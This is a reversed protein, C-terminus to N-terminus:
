VDINISLLTISLYCVKGSGVSGIVCILDGPEADFIINKLCFSGDQVCCFLDKFNQKLLTENSLAWLISCFVSRVIQEFM